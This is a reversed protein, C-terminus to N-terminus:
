IKATNENRFRGSQALNQFGVRTTNVSFFFKSFAFFLIVTITWNNSKPNPQKKQGLDNM